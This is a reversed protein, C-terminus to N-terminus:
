PSLTLAVELTPNVPDNTVFILTATSPATAGPALGVAMFCFSKPALLIGPFCNSFGNNATFFAFAEPNAGGISFSNLSLTQGGTNTIGLNAPASQLFFNLPGFGALIPRQPLGTGTLFIQAVGAASTVQLTATRVGEGTPTFVVHLLEVAGKNPALVTTAAAALDAAPISFDGPNAGLFTINTITLPTKKSVNYVLEVGTRSTGVSIGGPSMNQMADFNINATMPGAISGGQSFFWAPGDVQPSPPIQTGGSPAPAPTMSPPPPTPAVGGGGGTGGGGTGGGGTGGSFVPSPVSPSTSSASDSCASALVLGLVPLVSCLTSAVRM